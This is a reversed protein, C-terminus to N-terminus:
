EKMVLLLVNIKGELLGGVVGKEEVLYELFDCLGRIGRERRRLVTRMDKPTRGFGLM